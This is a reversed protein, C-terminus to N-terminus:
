KTKPWKSPTLLEHKIQLNEQILNGSNSCSEINSVLQSKNNVGFIVKDIFPKQLCYKLLLGPLKSANTQLQKIVPKIEAFFGDLQESEVFFLGQLFPSRTHIECGNKKLEVMYPQFRNDLYNFPVQILEPIFGKSILLDVEEPTNFSFGIKQVLKDQKLKFLYDWINPNQIIDQPRHALLGYLYSIGLKKFSNIVQDKISSNPSAPLFKTVIKYDNVGIGGLVEESKGYDSATDILDIGVSKAYNLISRVEDANTKGQKNSIGYNLGFQVSGLGIKEIM